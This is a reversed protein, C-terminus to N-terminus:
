TTPFGRPILEAAKLEAWVPAPVEAERVLRMTEALRSPKITSTVIQTV